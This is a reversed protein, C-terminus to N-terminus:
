YQPAPNTGIPLGYHFRDFEPEDQIQWDQTLDSHPLTPGEEQRLAGLVQRRVFPDDIPKHEYDTLRWGKGIRYAFGHVGQERIENALDGHYRVHAPDTEDNHSLVVSGDSPKLVFRYYLPRVMM